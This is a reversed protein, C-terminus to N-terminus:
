GLKLNDIGVLRDYLWYLILIGGLLLAALAAALSWNLSKQMHFAILNSILQGDAGGVLAPTIYYGVALIFVLLAGAGIGPVTQPFYIRRFATWSTAGLSRAARVYSPNIPRMVSYLPLVMFPMLIHTMAIITGRQNYMMQLRNEDGLIGVSVLADNVVGQSQLLVMWSTTRVLLSTWFPLLVLIMLLNSKSLPLTALLHAIPYALIFCLFTILVSLMLTRTFLKVYVQRNENVSVVSGDVDKTRDVAALYFNATYASSADRMVRWLTPDAWDEDLKLIAEKYPAELKPARRAAKTFMSRSGSREYNIRTGAQGAAKVERLVVLDAALAAFAAEDPETGAPNEDFWVKLNTMLPTQKGSGIEEHLTFGPNYVSRHLMQGIPVVFTVLIFALLPAVLLFARRKARSQAQALARKLPKGDATTLQGKVEDVEHSTADTM